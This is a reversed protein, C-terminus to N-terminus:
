LMYWWRRMSFITSRWQLPPPTWASASSRNCLCRCVSFLTLPSSNPKPMADSSKIFNLEIRAKTRTQQCQQFWTRRHMVVNVAIWGNTNELSLLAETQRFMYTDLSNINSYSFTKRTKPDFYKIWNLSNRNFNSYSKRTNWKEKRLKKLANEGWFVIFAVIFRLIYRFYPCGFNRPLHLFSWAWCNRHKQWRKQLYANM